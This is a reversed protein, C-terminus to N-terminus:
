KFFKSAMGAVDDIVSGDGDRDLLTTLLSSAGTQKEAHGTEREAATALEAAGTEDAGKKALLGMLMPLAATVGSQTKDQPVGLQSSLAEINSGSTLQSTLTELLNM